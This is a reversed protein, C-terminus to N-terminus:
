IVGCRLQDCVLGTKEIRRNLHSRAQAWVFKQARGLADLMLKSPDRTWAVTWSPDVDVDQKVVIEDVLTMIQHHRVWAQDFPSERELRQRFEGWEQTVRRAPLSDGREGCRARITVDASDTWKRSLSALLRALQPTM